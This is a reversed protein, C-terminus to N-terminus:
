KGGETLTILQLSSLVATSWPYKQRLSDEYHRLDNRTVECRPKRNADRSVEHGAVCIWRDLAEYREFTEEPFGDAKIEKISARTERLRQVIRAIQESTIKGSGETDVISFDSVEFQRLLPVAEYKAIRDWAFMVILAALAAGTLMALPLRRTQPSFSSM